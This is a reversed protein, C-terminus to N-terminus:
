SKTWHIAGLRMPSLCQLYGSGRVVTTKGGVNAPITKTYLGELPLWVLVEPDYVLLYPYKITTTSGTPLETTPLLEISGFDATFRDIVWMLEKMGQPQTFLRVPENVTHNGTTDAQTYSLNATFNSIAVKMSPTCLGRANPISERSEEFIAQLLTQLNASTVASAAADTGLNIVAASAVDVSSDIPCDTSDTVSTLGAWCSLGRTSHTNTSISSDQMGVLVNEFDRTLAKTATEVDDAHIQNGNGIGAQDEAALTMNGTSVTRDRQHPRIGLMKKLSEFNAADSATRDVGDAVSTTVAAPATRVPYKHLLRSPKKGKRITSFLPTKPANLLLILDELSPRMNPTDKTTSYMLYAM